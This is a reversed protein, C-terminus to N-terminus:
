RSGLVKIDSNNIYMQINDYNIQYKNILDQKIKLPIDGCELEMRAIADYISDRDLLTLVDNFARIENNLFNDCILSPFDKVKDKSCTVRMAPDQSKIFCEENDFMKSLKPSKGPYELIIWNGLTRDNQMTLYDFAFRKVIEEYIDDLYDFCNVDDYYRYILAKKITILNNMEINIYNEKSMEYRDINGNIVLYDYYDEMISYGSVQYYENENINEEIIGYRDNHKALKPKVSNIGAMRALYGILIERYIYELTSLNNYDDRQYLGDKTVNYKFVKNVGNDNFFYIDFADDLRKLQSNSIDILKASGM